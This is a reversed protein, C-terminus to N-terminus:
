LVGNTFHGRTEIGSAKHDKHDYPDERYIVSIGQDRITEVEDVHNIRANSYIMSYNKFRKVPFVARHSDRISYGNAYNCKECGRYQICGKIGSFPCHKLPMADMRGYVYMACPLPSYRVVDVIEKFTLENSLLVMSFNFCKLTEITYANFVNFYESAYVKLKPALKSVELQGLDSIMVGHLSQQLDSIISCQRILEEDNTIVPLKYVLKYGEYNQISSITSSDLIVFESDCEFQTSNETPEMWKTSSYPGEKTLRKPKVGKPVRLHRKTEKQYLQELARRRLDNITKISVFASEEIDIAGDVFRYPQDKTKEIQQRIRSADATGKIQLEVKEESRVEVTSNKTMLRLIADDGVHAVFQYSANKKISKVEQEFDRERREAKSLRRVSADSVADPVKSLWFSEGKKFSDSLTIPLKKHRLQISLTDGRGVDQSFLIRKQKEGFVTGVVSGKEIDSEIYHTGYSDFILGETFGRNSVEQLSDLDPSMRQLADKYVRVTTYVYDPKKMRGEIKLSSVGSAALAEIHDITSLDKPSLVKNTHVVRHQANLVDYEKRCPQACRGRNGSRDGIQVSMACKGSYGVCLSGHAFVEIEVGKECLEKIEDLRCERALTVRKVGLTKLYAITPRNVVSLQTSCHIDLDPLHDHVLKMLGLDQIIVADADMEYLKEVTEFAEMMEHQKILTNVTIYAKVGHFHCLRIAEEMTKDDFNGSYARAGFQKGGMYVANAGTGIAAYLMDMNGVPALIEIAM